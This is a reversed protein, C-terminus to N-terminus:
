LMVVKVLYLVKSIIHDYDVGVVPIMEEENSDAIWTVKMTKKFDQLVLYHSHLDDESKVVLKIVFM